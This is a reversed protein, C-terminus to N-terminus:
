FNSKLNGELKRKRKLLNGTYENLTGENKIILDPYFSFRNYIESDLAEFAEKVTDKTTIFIDYVDGKYEKSVTGLIKNDVMKYFYIQYDLAIVNDLTKRRIPRKAFQPFLPKNGNLRTSIEHILDLLNKSVSNSIDSKMIINEGNEGFEIVEIIPLCMENLYIKIYINYQLMEELLEFYNLRMKTYPM